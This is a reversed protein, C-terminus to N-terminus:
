MAEGEVLRFGPGSPLVCTLRFAASQYLEAFEGATRERGGTALLIAVDMLAAELAPEDNDPLIPEAV